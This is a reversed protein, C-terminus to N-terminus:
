IAGALVLETTLEMNIMAATQAGSAAAIVAGQMRTTLDGSAYIGPVSTARTMPDVKVLGDELALGLQQVLPVQQQPPHAFLLDSPVRSGSALVVHSIAGDRGEIRELKATEVRVGATALQARDAEAIEFAGNTFVTVDKTWGRLQLAFMMLHAAAQPMVLFGWKQDRQEWGHCYPCQVISHGWHEAWGPIPSPEDIMGTGLLIRRAAVTTGDVAVSFAGRSGTISEVRGDRVEVNPYTALQERAIRRFENPPTEDRTVFNYIHKAAANRRPGSDCLLVRKRARGLSLAAQLGSPGGGVIVVDYIM